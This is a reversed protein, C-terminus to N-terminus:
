DIWKKENKMSKLWYNYFSSTTRPTSMIMITNTSKTKIHKWQIIDKIPIIKTHCVNNKYYLIVMSIHNAAHVHADVNSITKNVDDNFSINIFDHTNPITFPLPAFNSQITNFLTDIAQEAIIHKLIVKFM